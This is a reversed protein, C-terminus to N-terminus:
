GLEADHWKPLQELTDLVVDAGANDLERRTASGTAVAVARVGCARAATIDHATDGVVVIREPECAGVLERGREIARAVLRGRDESDCGYGGFRFRAHLGARELKIRAGREINGTAIGIGVRECGELHTLAEVVFPLVKLSASITLERELEGVYEDLIADVEEATPARGIRREFVQAVLWPDTRGGADIGHMARSLGHRRAFVNDLARAGAGGARLLTGDIDFLYLTTTV